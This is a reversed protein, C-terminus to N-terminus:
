IGGNRWNHMQMKFDEQDCPEPATNPAEVQNVTPEIDKFADQSKEESFEDKDNVSVNSRDDDQDNEESTVDEVKNSGIARQTMEAISLNEKKDFKIFFKSEMRIRDKYPPPNVGKRKSLTDSEFIGSEIRGDM